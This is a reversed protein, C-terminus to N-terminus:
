GFNTIVIQNLVNLGWVFITWDQKMWILFVELILGTSDSHGPCIYEHVRRREVQICM